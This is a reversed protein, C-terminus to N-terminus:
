MLLLDYSFNQLINIVHNRQTLIGKDCLDSLALRYYGIGVRVHRVKYKM